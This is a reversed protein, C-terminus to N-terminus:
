FAGSRANTHRAREPTVILDVPEDGPRRPLEDVLQFAYCVGIRLAHPARALAADYFGRGFGLRNGRCDFAVAPVIVLEPQVLPAGAPPEDVGFRGPSLQARSAIHFALSGGDVRPWAVAACLPELAAPDIENKIAAYLAVVRARGLEPLAAVLRVVATSAARVDDASLAERRARLERRLSERKAREDDVAELV